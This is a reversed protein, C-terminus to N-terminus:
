SSKEVKVWGLFHHWGDRAPRGMATSIILVIGGCTVQDSCDRMSIKMGASQNWTTGLQCDCSLIVTDKHGKATEWTMNGPLWCDEKQWELNTQMKSFKISIWDYWCTSEYDPNEWEAYSNQLIDMQLHCKVKKKLFLFKSGPMPHGSAISAM